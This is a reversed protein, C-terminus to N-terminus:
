PRHCGKWIKRTRRLPIDSPRRPSPTCPLRMNGNGRGDGSVCSQVTTVEMSSRWRCRCDVVSASRYPNPVRLQFAFLNRPIDGSFNDAYILGPAWNDTVSHCRAFIYTPPPCSPLMTSWQHATLSLTGTSYLCGSSTMSHRWIVGFPNLRLAPAVSRAILLDFSQQQHGSGRRNAQM